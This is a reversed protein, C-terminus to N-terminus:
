LDAEKAALDSERRDVDGRQAQLRDALQAAHARLQELSQDVTATEAAEVMKGSGVLQLAVHEGAARPESRLVEHPGDVRLAHAPPNARGSSATESSMSQQGRQWDTPSACAIRASATQARLAKSFGM